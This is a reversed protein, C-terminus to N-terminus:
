CEGSGLDVAMGQKIENARLVGDNSWFGTVGVTSQPCDRLVNDFWDVDTESAGAFRPCSFLNLITLFSFM